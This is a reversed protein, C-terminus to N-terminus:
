GTTEKIVNQRDGSRKNLNWPTAPLIIQKMEHSLNFIITTHLYVVLGSQRHVSENEYIKSRGLIQIFIILPLQWFTNHLFFHRKSTECLECSLM